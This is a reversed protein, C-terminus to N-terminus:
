NRSPPFGSQEVALTVPKHAVEPLCPVTREHARQAHIQVVTIERSWIIGEGQAAPVVASEGGEGIWGVLDGHLQAYGTGATTGGLACHAARQHQFHLRSRRWLARESTLPATTISAVNNDITTTGSNIEKRFTGANDLRGSWRLTRHREPTSYRGPRNTIVASSLNCAGGGTWVITGANELTRSTLTDYFVPQSYEYHSWHCDSNAWDREDHGGTWNMLSGVTLPDRGSCAAWTVVAPSVTGSGDFNATGFINLTNNTCIYNGTLNAAGGSFTNTGALNVLGALSATGGSVTLNGAGTISSAGDSTFTNGLGFTTGAPVTITGAINAGGGSFTLGGTQLDVTSYNNFPVSISSAGATVSKRFLGVNDFRGSGSISAGNQIQFLAGARNTIIGGTM